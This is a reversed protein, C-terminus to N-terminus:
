FNLKTLKSELIRSLDFSFNKSLREVGWFIRYSNKEQDSSFTESRQLTVGLIEM